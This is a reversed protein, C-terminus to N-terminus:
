PPVDQSTSLARSRIIAAPVVRPAMTTPMQFVPIPRMASYMGLFAAGVSSMLSTVSMKSWGERGIM